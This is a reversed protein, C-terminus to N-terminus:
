SVITTNIQKHMKSFVFIFCNKKLYGVSASNLFEICKWCKQEILSKLIITNPEIANNFPLLLM